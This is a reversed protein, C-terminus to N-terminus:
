LKKWMILADENDNAYYKPRIGVAIFGKNKYLKIAAFNSVRVELTARQCDEELSFNLLSDILTQAVGSQRYPKAIALNTIHLEDTIIWAGIYGIVLQDLVAILYSAYSNESIERKFSRRSWPDPFSEEEIKMVEALHSLDMKRIKIEM